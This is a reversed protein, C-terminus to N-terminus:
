RASGAGCIFFFYFKYQCEIEQLLAFQCMYLFHRANGEGRHMIDLESFKFNGLKKGGCSQFCQVACQGATHQATHKAHM